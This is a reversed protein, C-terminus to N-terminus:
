KESEVEEVEAQIAYYIDPGSMWVLLSAARRLLGERQAEQTIGKAGITDAAVILCQAAKRLCDAQDKNQKTM